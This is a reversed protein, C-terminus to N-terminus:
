MHVMPTCGYTGAAERAPEVDAALVAYNLGDAAARIADDHRRLIHRVAPLDGDFRHLICERVQDVRAADKALDLQHPEKAGM